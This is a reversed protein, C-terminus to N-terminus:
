AKEKYMVTVSSAKIIEKWDLQKTQENAHMILTIPAPGFESANVCLSISNVMGPDVGLAKCITVGLDDQSIIHQVKAM